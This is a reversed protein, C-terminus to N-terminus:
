AMRMAAPNRLGFTVRRPTSTDPCTSATPLFTGCNWGPSATNPVHRPAKASYPHADAPAKTSFGALIVKSCAAATGTAAM